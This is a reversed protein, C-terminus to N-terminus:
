PRDLQETALCDHILTQRSSYWVPTVWQIRFRFAFLPPLTLTSRRGKWELFDIFTAEIIKPATGLEIRIVEEILSRPRKFPIQDAM